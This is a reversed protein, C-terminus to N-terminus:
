KAAWGGPYVFLDRYSMMWVVLRKRDLYDDGRKKLKNPAEPGGGWGMILDVPGGLQRALHATVGAHRCGVSQYVGTYSDGLVLIESSDSDEYLNGAEDLVQRGLLTEPAVQGKKADPLRAQIDGLNGFATDKLKYARKDAFVTDCWTYNRIREAVLQAAAELGV